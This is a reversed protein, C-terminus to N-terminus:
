EALLELRGTFDDVSESWLLRRAAGLATAADGALRLLSRINSQVPKLQASFPSPLYLDEGGLDFRLHEGRGAEFGPGYLEVYVRSPRLEWEGDWRWLDWRTEVQACTDEHMFEQAAAAVAAPDFEGDFATEIVAPEQFSFPYIRVVAGPALKSAPFPDLAQKLYLASALPSYGKLWLSLFLPDGVPEGGKAM